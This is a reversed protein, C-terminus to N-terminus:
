FSRTKIPNSSTMARSILNCTRFALLDGGTFVFQNTTITKTMILRFGGMVSLQTWLRNKTAYKSHKNKMKTYIKERSEMWRYITSRIENHQPVYKPYKKSTRWHFSFSVQSSEPTFQRLVLLYFYNIATNTNWKVLPDQFKNKIAWKCLDSKYMFRRFYLWLTLTVHSNESNATENEFM